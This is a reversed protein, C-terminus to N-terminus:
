SALIFVFLCFHIMLADLTNVITAFSSGLITDDRALLANNSISRLAGPCLDLVNEHIVVVVAQRAKVTDRFAREARGLASSHVVVEVILKLFDYFLPLFRSDRPGLDASLVLLVLVRTLLLLESCEAHM